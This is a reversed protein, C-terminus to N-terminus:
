WKSRSVLRSFCCCALTSIMSWGAQGFIRNVLLDDVARHAEQVSQAVVVGKGAALGDAKVVIPAGQSSIYQKAAAPDQFKKYAATPISFRECFGQLAQIVILGQVVNLLEQTFCSKLSSSM